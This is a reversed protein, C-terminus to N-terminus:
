LIREKNETSIIKIIIHQISTKNQALRNPTRSTEQVQIPLLKELNSFNETINISYIYGKPKCRKEEEIGMIRWNPRKISDSLEQM